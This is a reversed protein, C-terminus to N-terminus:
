FLHNLDSTMFCRSESDWLGGRSMCSLGERPNRGRPPHATSHGPDEPIRLSLAQQHKESPILLRPAAKHRKSVEGIPEVNFPCCPISGEEPLEAPVCMVGLM